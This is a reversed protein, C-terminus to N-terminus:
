FGITGSWKDRYSYSCKSSPTRLVITGSGSARRFRGTGGTVTFSATFGYCQGKFDSSKLSATISDHPVQNSTLTASATMDQSGCFWTFKIQESSSHLFKARGGGQYTFMATGSCDGSRSFTGSYAGAFRGGHNFIIGAPRLRSNSGADFTPSVNPAADCAALVIIAAVALSQRLRLFSKV